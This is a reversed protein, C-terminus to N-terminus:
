SAARCLLLARVCGVDCVFHLVDERKIGSYFGRHFGDTRMVFDPAYGKDRFPYLGWPKSELLPKAVLTKPVFGHEFLYTLEERMNFDGDDYRGRHVEFLIKMERSSSAVMRRMGRFVKVEYGEVDMRLFDVPRKDACFSDLDEVPIDEFGPSGGAEDRIVDAFLAHCNSHKSLYLRETGPRDSVALHFHEIWRGEPNLAINERLLDYNERAPEIAYVHGTPGVLCAELLAYYGINAGLDLVVMGPRMEEQIIRLQDEERVGFQVLASAIGQLGRDDIPLKMRYGHIRKVLHDRGLITRSFWLGALNLIAKAGRNFGERRLVSAIKRFM